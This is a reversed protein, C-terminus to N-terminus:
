AMPSTVAMIKLLPKGSGLAPVKRVRFGFSYSFANSGFNATTYRLGLKIPHAVAPNFCSATRRTKGAALKVGLRIGHYTLRAGPSKPM